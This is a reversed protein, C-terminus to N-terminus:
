HITLPSGPDPVFDWDFPSPAIAEGAGRDRFITLIRARAVDEYEPEPLRPELWPREPGYEDVLVSVGPLGLFDRSRAPGADKDHREFMRRLVHRLASFRVGDEVFLLDVAQSRVVEHFEHRAPMPIIKHFRPGVCVDMHDEDDVDRTLGELFWLHPAVLFGSGAQFDRGAEKFARQLGRVLQRRRQQRDRERLRARVGANALAAADIPLPWQRPAWADFRAGPRLVAPVHERRRPAPGFRVVVGRRRAAKRLTRRAARRAGQVHLQLPAPRAPDRRRGYLLMSGVIWAWIPALSVGAWGLLLGLRASVPGRPDEPSAGFELAPLGVALIVGLIALSVARNWHRMESVRMPTVRGPPRWLYLLSPTPLLLVALEIVLFAGALIAFPAWAPLLWCALAFGGFYAGCLLLYIWRFDERQPLRTRQLAFYLTAAGILVAFLAGLAFLSWLVGEFAFAFVPSAAILGERLVALPAGGMLPRLLVLGWAPILVAHVVGPLGRRLPPERRLDVGVLPFAPRLRRWARALQRECQRWLPNGHRRHLWLNFVVVALLGLVGLADDTESQARRGLLEAGAAWVIWSLAAWARVPPRRM